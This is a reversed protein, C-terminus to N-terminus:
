GKQAAKRRFRVALWLLVAIGLVFPIATFFAVNAPASYCLHEIGCLMGRYNYAVVACMTHSLVIAAALFLRSLTKM